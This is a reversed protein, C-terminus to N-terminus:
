RSPIPGPPSQPFAVWGRAAFSSMDTAELGLESVTYLSDGVVLSRRIPIGGLRSGAGAGSARAHTIRGAEAIGGRGVRFAVAGVFPKDAYAQVPLVALRTREWWLFTHHDSEAESRSSGIAYSRLRVPRRLDSVDFLSLQTGLV